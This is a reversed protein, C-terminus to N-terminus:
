LNSEGRQRGRRQAGGGDPDGDDQVDEDGSSSGAADAEVPVSWRCGGITRVLSLRWQYPGAVAEVPVSWRGVM